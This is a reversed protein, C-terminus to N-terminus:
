RWEPLRKVLELHFKILWKRTKPPHSHLRLIAGM